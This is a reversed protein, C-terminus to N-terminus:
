RKEVRRSCGVFLFSFFFFSDREIRIGCIMSYRARGRLPQRLVRGALTTGEGEEEERWSAGHISGMSRILYPLPVDKTRLVGQFLDELRAVVALPELEPRVVDKARKVAARLGFLEPGGRRFRSVLWGHRPAELLMLHWAVPPRRRLPLRHLQDLAHWRVGIFPVHLM